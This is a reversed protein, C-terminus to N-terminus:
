WFSQLQSKALGQTPPPAEPLRHDRRYMALGGPLLVYEGGLRQQIDGPLARIRYTNLMWPCKTLDETVLEVMWGTDAAQHQFLTDVYWQRSCPPLFWALGSPDLIRDGPRSARRLARLTEVQQTRPANLSDSYAKLPPGGGVVVQAAIFGALVAPVAWGPSRRVADQGRRALILALFPAPLALMYAWPHPHLAIFALPVLAFLTAWTEPDGVAGRARSRVITALTVGLAATAALWWAADRALPEALSTWPPVREVAGGALGAFTTYVGTFESLNGRTAVLGIWATTGAIAGGVLQGVKRWRSREAAAAVVLGPGLLALAFFLGKLHHAALWAVVVGLWLHNHRSRRVLLGYGVLWGALIAADYRFELAHVAVTAQALCIAGALRATRATTRQALAWAGATGVLAVTALRAILFVAGPDHVWSGLYGLALTWPMLFDPEAPIKQVLLWGARLALSEDFNLRRVIAAAVFLAALLALSWTIARDAPDRSGPYRPIPNRDAM